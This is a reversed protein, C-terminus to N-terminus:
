LGDRIEILLNRSETPSLACSKIMSLSTAIETVQTHDEVVWGARWGEIYAVPPKSQFEFLSAPGDIGPADAASFPLVQIVCKSSDAMNVLHDVQEHMVAAGGVVQHLAGEAIIVWLKPPDERRFLEHRELRAEIDRIWESEPAYPRGTRVVTQAYAPTQLLGPIGRMEWETIVSAAEEYKIRSAFWEPFQELVTLDHFRAFTGPCGFFEDCWAAFDAQPRRKGQEVKKLLSLSIGARQAFQGQLLGMRERHAKLEEAFKARATVAMTGHYAGRAANLPSVRWPWPCV